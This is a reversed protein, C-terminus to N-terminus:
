KHRGPKKHSLLKPIFILGLIVVGGGIFWGKHAVVFDKTKNIYRMIGQGQPEQGDPPTIKTVTKTKTETDIDDGEADKEEDESTTKTKTRSEHKGPAPAGGDGGDDGTPDPVHYSISQTGDPNDHVQTTVGGHDVSGDSNINAKGDGQDGTADNHNKASDVAADDLQGKSPVGIGFSKLIEKVKLILPAAAALVAPIALPAFGMTAYEEDHLMLGSPGASGMSEYGSVKHAEHHKNWVKLGQTLATQLKNPNGGMKKWWNFLKDHAAKNHLIHQQIKSATHFLNLKLYLLFANRSTALAPNLKKFLQGIQLKKHAKHRKAHHAKAKHKGVTMDGRSFATDVWGLGSDVMTYTSGNGNREVSYGGSLTTGNHMGALTNGNPMGNVDWVQGLKGIMKGMPPQKDQHSIYRPFHQDFTPVVPDCWIETGKDMIVAFVHGSRVGKENQQNTYVAFRYKAKIPYGMRHLACCISVIAQSFHKCDGVGEVHIAALSKVTQDDTGEEDYKIRDKYYHYLYKATEYTTGKWFRLAIANAAAENQEHKHLIDGMLDKISQRKRISKYDGRYPQVQVLTQTISDM